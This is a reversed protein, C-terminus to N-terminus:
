KISDAGTQDIYWMSTTSSLSNRFRPLAETQFEPGGARQAQRSRPDPTLMACPQSGLGGAEAVAIALEADSSGAMPAQIIPLLVGLLEEAKSM